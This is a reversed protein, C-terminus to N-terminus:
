YLHVKGRPLVHPLPCAITAFVTQKPLRVALELVMNLVDHCFLVTSRIVGLVEGQRAM